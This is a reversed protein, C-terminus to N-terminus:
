GAVVWVVAVLEAEGVGGVEKTAEAWAVVVSAVAAQGGVALAVAEVVM